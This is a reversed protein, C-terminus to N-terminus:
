TTCCGPWTCPANWWIPACSTRARPATHGTTFLLHIVGLTPRLRDPLEAARPIRYPIRAGSIKKKARTIRAGMTTESVLFARAIDPTPIGCVLRLTLALQAEQALAPHCWRHVTDVPVRRSKDEVGGDRAEV